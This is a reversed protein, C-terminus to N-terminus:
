EKGEVVDCCCTKKGSDFALSIKLLIAKEVVLL